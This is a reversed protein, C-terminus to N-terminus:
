GADRIRGLTRPPTNGLAGQRTRAAEAWVDRIGNRRYCDRVTFRAFWWGYRCIRAERQREAVLVEEVSQGPKLLRGYKMLGDFEGLLGLEEWAFDSRGLYVGDPSWIEYQVAPAPVGQQDMRMRSVSEYYSESAGNGFAIAWQVGSAGRRRRADAVDLLESKTVGRSLVGDVLALGDDRPWRSACDVATRALSTVPLGAVTTIEPPTLPAKHLHVVSGRRGGSVGPRTVDVVTGFTTPLPLGHLVAASLHSFVAGPHMAQAAADVALRHKDELNSPVGWSYYGQRVKCLTNSSLLHAIDAETLGSAILQKFSLVPEM